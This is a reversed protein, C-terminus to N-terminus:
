GAKRPLWAPAAGRGRVLWDLSVDLKESLSSLQEFGPPLKGNEYKSITGSALAVEHALKEQSLGRGKRVRALRKGFDVLNSM